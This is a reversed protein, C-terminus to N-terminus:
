FALAQKGPAYTLTLCPRLDPRVRAVVSGEVPVVPDAAAGGKAKAVARAKKAGRKNLADNVKSLLLPAIGPLGYLCHWLLGIRQAEGATCVADANSWECMGNAVCQAGDPLQACVTADVRIAGGEIQESDSYFDACVLVLILFLRGFSDVFTDKSKKHVRPHLLQQVSGELV